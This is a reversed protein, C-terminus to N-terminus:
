SEQPAATSKNLLGVCQAIVYSLDPGMQLEVEFAIADPVGTKKFVVATEIFGRLPAV